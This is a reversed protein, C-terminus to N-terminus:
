DNLAQVLNWFWLLAFIFLVAVFLYLGYIFLIANKFLKGFGQALYYAMSDTAFFRKAFSRQGTQPMADEL